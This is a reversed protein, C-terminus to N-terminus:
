DSESTSAVSADEIGEPQTEPEAFLERSGKVFVEVEEPTLGLDELTIPKFEPTAM